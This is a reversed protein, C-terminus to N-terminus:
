ETKKIEFAPLVSEDHKSFRTALTYNGNQPLPWNVPFSHLANVIEAERERSIGKIVKIGSIAKKARVRFRVIVLGTDRDKNIHSQYTVLAMLHHHLYASTYNGDKLKGIAYIEPLPKAANNFRLRSTDAGTRPSKAFTRGAATVALTVVVLLLFLYGPGVANNRRNQNLKM